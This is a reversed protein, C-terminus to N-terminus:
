CVSCGWKALGRALPCLRPPTKGIYKIYNNVLMMKPIHTELTEAAEPQRVLFEAYSEPNGYTNFFATKIIHNVTWETRHEVNHLTKKAEKLTAKVFRSVKRTHETPCSLVLWHCPKTLEGQSAEIGPYITITAYGNDNWNFTTSAIPFAPEMPVVHHVFPFEAVGVLRRDYEAKQLELKELINQLVPQQKDLRPRNVPSTKEADRAFESAAIIGKVESVYQVLCRYALLFLQNALRAQESSVGRDDFVLPGQRKPWAIPITEIDRFTDNDCKNCAFNRTSAESPSEPKPPVREINWPFNGWPEGYSGKSRQALRPTDNPMFKLVKAPSGSAISNLVTRQITHCKTTNGNCDVIAAGNEDKRPILCESHLNGQLNNDIEVMYKFSESTHGGTSRDISRASAFENLEARMREFDLGM